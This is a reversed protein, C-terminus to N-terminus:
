IICPKCGYFFSGLVQGEVAADWGFQERMSVIAVSMNTRDADTARWVTQMRETLAVLTTCFPAANSANSTCCIFGGFCCCCVVRCRPALWQSGALEREETSLMLTDSEKEGDRTDVSCRADAPGATLGQREEALQHREQGNRQLLLKVLAVIGVVQLAIATSLLVLQLLAPQIVPLREGASEM